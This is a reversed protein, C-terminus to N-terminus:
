DKKKIMPVFKVPIIDKVEIKEGNKIVLKLLQAGDKAEVPIVLRGGERLQKVLEPVISDAAFGVIIADFPAEEPWGLTGEGLRFHVNDYGLRKLREQAAEKMAALIDVTYVEKCLLSLIATHYGSGTGLELLRENGKLGLLKTMLAIEYPRGMKQDNGIPMAEDTYAKDKAEPLVFEHRPVRLFAQIIRTDFMGYGVIYNEVMKKRFIKYTESEVNPGAANAPDQASASSTCLIFGSLFFVLLKSFATQNAM